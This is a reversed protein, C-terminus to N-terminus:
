ASRAARAQAFMAPVDIEKPADQECQEDEALAKLYRRNEHLKATVIVGRAFDVLPKPDESSQYEAVALVLREVVEDYKSVPLNRLAERLGTAIVQAPSHQDASATM